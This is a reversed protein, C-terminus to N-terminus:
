KIVKFSQFSRDSKGVGKYVQRVSWTYTRGNEFMGADISITSTAASVKEKFLLTAEVMDRGKYLRFDYYKRGPLMRGEHRSWVFDLFEKGKLSVTEGVPSILRVEPVHSILDANRASISIYSAGATGSFVLAGILAFIIKKVTKWEKNNADLVRRAKLM